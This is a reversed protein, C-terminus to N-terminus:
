RLTEARRRPSRLRFPRPRTRRHPGRGPAAHQRDPRRAPGKALVERLRGNSGFRCQGFPGDGFVRRRIRPPSNRRRCGARKRGPGRWRNIDGFRSGSGKQHRGPGAPPAFTAPRWSGGQVAGMQSRWYDRVIEHSTQEPRDSFAALLEHATKGYYLPAILPQIISVTGDYARVDSWSELFHAQPIHWQCIEATEDKYLGMHVRLKAKKLLELNFNLDAPASYVPNGGIIILLDVQGTNIDDVLERLSAIDDVPNAEVPDTYVITNGANGLAQNMAHALAHIAPPQFEGPVVLSAGRHAQLDKVVESIWDAPAGEVPGPQAGQVGLGSAVARAFAEIQSPRLPSSITPRRARSRRRASSRM